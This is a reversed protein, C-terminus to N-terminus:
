QKPNPPSVITYAIHRGTNKQIDTKVFSMMEFDSKKQSHGLKSVTRWDYNLDSLINM